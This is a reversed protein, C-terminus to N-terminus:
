GLQRASPRVSAGLFSDAVSSQANMGTFSKSGLSLLIIAPLALLQDAGHGGGRAILGLSSAREAHGAASENAPELLMAQLLLWGWYVESWSHFGGCGRGTLAPRRLCRRAHVPRGLV